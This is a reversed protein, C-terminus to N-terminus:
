RFPHVDLLGRLGAKVAEFDTRPDTLRARERAHRTSLSGAAVALSYGSRGLSRAVAV